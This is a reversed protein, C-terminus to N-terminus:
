YRSAPARRWVHLSPAIFICVARMRSVNERESAFNTSSVRGYNRDANRHPNGAVDDNYVRVRLIISQM